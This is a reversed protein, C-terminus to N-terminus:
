SLSPGWQNDGDSDSCFVILNFLPILIVWGGYGVDHARKIGIIINVVAIAFAALVILFESFFALIFFFLYNFFFTSWFQKRTIRGKIDSLNELTSTYAEWM